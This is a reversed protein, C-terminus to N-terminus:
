EQAHARLGVSAVTARRCRCQCQSSHGRAGHQVRPRSPAPRPLDAQARLSVARSLQDHPARLAQAARSLTMVIHKHKLQEPSRESSDGERVASGRATARDCGYPRCHQRRPSQASSGGEGRKRLLCSGGLRSARASRPQRLGRPTWVAPRLGTEGLPSRARAAPDTARRRLQEAAPHSLRSRCSTWAGATPVLVARCCVREM